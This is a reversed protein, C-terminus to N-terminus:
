QLVTGPPIRVVLDEGEAGTKNNGSGHTGKHARYVRQNQFDLLTRVRADTRFIVHGGRGGDGGDPGGKPVFKERRFSVCGFGGRGAEVRISVRDVFMGSGVVPSASRAAGGTTRQPRTPHVRGATPPSAAREGVHINDAM